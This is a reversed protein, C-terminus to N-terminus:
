GVPLVCLKPHLVVLHRTSLKRQGHANVSIGSGSNIRSRGGAYSDSPAEIRAGKVARQCRSSPCPLSDALTFEARTNASKIAQVNTTVAM